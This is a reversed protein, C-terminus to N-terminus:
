FTIKFDFGYYATPLAFAAEVGQDNGTSATAQPDVGQPTNKFLTALNRGVLAFRLSKIPTKKIVSIPVTYGLTMESLKIFSADYIFQDMLYSTTQSWYTQPQIYLNTNPGVKTYTRTTSNYSYLVGNFKAGLVRNDPNAYPLLPENNNQGLRELSSEGLVTGGFTYDNRNALTPLFNGQRDGNLMSQSFLKGGVQYTLLFSFDFNKVRFQSNFSGRSEPSVQGLFVNSEIIPNGTAADVMLNGDIDRRQRTGRLVGFPKGTEANINLQSNVSYMTFTSLSDSITIVKNNNKSWNFTLNWSVDKKQIAKANITVEFGNNAIEGANFTGTRYGTSPPILPNVIDNLTRSNYYTLDLSLRNELFRLDAGVENSITKEPKLTSNKLQTGLGFVPINNFIGTYTFNNYLQNFSTGNGVIASSARLKGFTLINKPIKFAETFLFSMSAAPYFFSCNSIPLTSNWDNRGTLDLYLWDKYGLTIDGFVAEKRMRQSSETSQIAEASNSLSKVDHVFLNSTSSNTVYLSNDTWNAGLMTTLSLDKIKKDYTLVGQYQYTKTMRSFIGYSGLPMGITGMNNFDFGNSNQNDVAAMVKLKLSKAINVNVTFNSLFWNKTDSNSSENLAWYPNYFQGTNTSLQIANGSADKWPTLESISMDRPFYIYAMLVNRESWGSYNRDQLKDISYLVNAEVNINKTINYETRLSFNNRRRDNVGKVVDNSATNVYSLRFSGFENSKSVSISNTLQNASSFFDKVNNPNPSYTKVLGNRGVVDFGTMPVGWSSSNYPTLVAMSQYIMSRYKNTEGLRSSNGGGYTNQFPPFETITQFMNNLSYTVGLNTNGGGKKTTIVIVGNAADAGYLASASGGKLIEISKIDDPNINSMTNGYDIDDAGDVGMSTGNVKGMDNQIIVGDVVYLPQNNGTLSKIGRIEVRTSASPGGGPIVSVGAAKGALMNVFNADRSDTMYNADVSQRSYGLSKAERSIGLATVVVEDINVIKEMLTVNIETQNLVPVEVPEFGLLKFVLISKTGSQINLSYNGNVDSMSGNNTGKIVITVGPVPAGANDIVRGTIKIKQLEAQSQDGTKSVQAFVQANIMIMLFACALRFFLSTKFPLNKKMKKEILM